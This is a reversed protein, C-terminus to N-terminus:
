NLKGPTRADVAAGLLRVVTGRRHPGPRAAPWCPLARGQLRRGASTRLTDVPRASQRVVRIRLHHFTRPSVRQPRRNGAGAVPWLLRREGRHELCLPAPRRCSRRQRRRPLHIAARVVPFARLSSLVKLIPLPTPMRPPPTAGIAVLKRPAAFHRSADNALQHCVGQKVRVRARPALVSAPRAQAATTLAATLRSHGTGAV